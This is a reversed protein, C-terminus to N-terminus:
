RFAALAASFAQFAYRRRCSDPSFILRRFAAIFRLRRFHRFADAPPMM